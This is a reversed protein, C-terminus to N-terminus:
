VISYQGSFLLHRSPEPSLPLFLHFNYKLNMMFLVRVIYVILFVHRDHVINISYKTLMNKDTHKKFREFDLLFILLGIATIVIQITIFM